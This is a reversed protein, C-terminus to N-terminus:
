YNVAAGIIGANNLLKAPTVSTEVTTIYESFKEFKKSIGGGIIILDPFFLREIELLYENFRKGWKKWSLDGKERVADSAYKEAIRDNIILQGFELNPVLLGKYFLATGLGTGVTIVFVLDQRSSGAGFKMEAIAAADADNIVKVPCETVDTFLKDADCGIWNKDINAATKIVGNKVVAPFGIGIPGDWNHLRKLENVTDAINEPSSVSPTLLRLRETILNGSQTEIVAGKIGSGGVDIGLIEM